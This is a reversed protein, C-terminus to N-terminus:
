GAVENEAAQREWREQYVQRLAACVALTQDIGGVGLRQLWRLFPHSAADQVDADGEDLCWHRRLGELEALKTDDMRAIQCAKRLKPLAQELPELFAEVEPDFGYM